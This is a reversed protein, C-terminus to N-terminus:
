LSLKIMHDGGLKFRKFKVSKGRQHGTYLGHVYRMSFVDEFLEQITKHAVTAAISASKATVM